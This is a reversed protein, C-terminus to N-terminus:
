FRRRVGFWVNKMDLDLGFSNSAEAGDVDSKVSSYSIAGISTTLAWDDNLFFDAGVGVGVGFGNVTVDSIGNDTSMYNVGLSAFPSFRKEPMCYYRVFAGVMFTNEDEIENGSFDDATMSMYGLNLGAQWNNNFFYGVEPMIGFGSEKADGQSTTNYNLSGSVTWNGKEYGGTFTDNGTDEGQAIVNTLGFVAVAAFLLLKKMILKILNFFQSPM